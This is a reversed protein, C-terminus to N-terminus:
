KGRESWYLKKAREREAKEDKESAAISAGGKHWVFSDKRWACTWGFKTQGRNIFDSEAGYFDYREDFGNLEEWVVKPFLVCFGSIPDNVIEAQQEYKQSEEYSPITKQISHCQNTSPGVFRIWEDRGITTILKELWKPYVITDSNLLCVYEAQSSRILENWAQTLTLGSEYNDFFTLVYPRYKTNHVISQLCEDEVSPLNYGIVIINCLNPIM